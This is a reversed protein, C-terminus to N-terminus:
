GNLHMVIPLGVIEISETQAISNLFDGGGECGDTDDREDPNGFLDPRRFVCYMRFMVSIPIPARM